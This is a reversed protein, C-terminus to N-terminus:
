KGETPPAVCRSRAAKRAASDKVAIKQAAEINDAMEWGIAQTAPELAHMTKYFGLQGARAKMLMLAGAFECAELKAIPTTTV